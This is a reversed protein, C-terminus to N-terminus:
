NWARWLVQRVAQLQTVIAGADLRDLTDNPTDRLRRLDDLTAMTFGPVGWTQCLESAIPIPACLWTQPARAGNLPEFDVLGRVRTFWEAEPKNEWTARELKAFWDRYDQIHSINSTGQYRGLYLPGARVGRDSLDLGVLLEILRSNNAGDDPDKNKGLAGALWEYLEIRRRLESERQQYNRVLGPRVVGDEGGGGALRSITRGLYHAAHDKLEPLALDRPREKLSFRLRNLMLQRAELREQERERYEPLPNPHPHNPTEFRKWDFDGEGGGEGPTGPSPTRTRLRFLVDQELTTDTEIIKVIRDILSRDRVIDISTPKQAVRELRALDSAVAQQKEALTALEARWVAPVDALAMLMNRTALFNVSDAGGFFVLVPRDLPKASLERLLALGAATQAAQSAGPALDPVLSMSDFPVSIVMAGPPQAPAPPWGEPRIQAPTVLAYYNTATQRQWTMKAKLTALRNSRGSRLSEALESEPLYFRPLNIPLSLDHSALKNNDIDRSGLVVIAKAGFYSANSWYPSAEVVAIQGDLDGPKIDAARGQGVYVLKGTIGEAPTANVRVQAPWFPYVRVDGVGEVALTAQETVPTMVPYDHKQWRVNPLAGLEQELYAATKH